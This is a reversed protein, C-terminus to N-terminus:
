GRSRWSAPLVPWLPAVGGSGIPGCTATGGASSISIGIVDGPCCKAAPDGLRYTAVTKGAENMVYFTGFSGLPITDGKPNDIFVCAAIDDSSEATNGFSYAEGDARMRPQYAVRTADYITEHGTVEIHKVTLM